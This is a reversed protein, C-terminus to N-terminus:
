PKKELLSLIENESVPAYSWQDVGVNIMKGNQKWGMHVHGHLLPLGEDKIQHHSFDRGDEYGGDYPFHSMAVSQGQFQIMYNWGVTEEFGMRKWKTNTWKRDHNGMVLVKNGQLQKLIRETEIAGHFSVDGLHYVTDLPQVLFNWRRILELEMEELSAFPRKCYPIINRHGFHTDSTFWNM